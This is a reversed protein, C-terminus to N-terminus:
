KNFAQTGDKNISSLNCGWFESESGMCLWDVRNRFTQIKMKM